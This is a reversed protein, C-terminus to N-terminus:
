VYYIVGLISWIIVAIGIIVGFFFLGEFGCLFAVGFGILLPILVIALVIGLLILGLDGLFEGNDKDM